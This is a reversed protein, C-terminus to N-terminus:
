NLIEQMDGTIKGHFVVPSPIIERNSLIKDIEKIFCDIKYKDPNYQNIRKIIV